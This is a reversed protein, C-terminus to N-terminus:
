QTLLSLSPVNSAPFPAYPRFRQSTGCLLFVVVGFGPPSGDYDKFRCASRRLMVRVYPALRHYFM